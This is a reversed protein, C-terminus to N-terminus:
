LDKVCRGSYGCPKTYIGQGATAYNSFLDLGWANWVTSETASWFLAHDLLNAFGGGSVKYGGPLATFGSSNTAGTNPSLWHSTGTEKMKGGADTGVWGGICSVSADLFTEMQCYEAQSPVHWGAPCIGQRGSPNSSSSTAYNLLENWQYLGGYIACNSELDDYCYKEISGTNTQEQSGYILTGVNLNKAMWCQSGIQVTNYIKNDRTDTIPQGCTWTCAPTMQTITTATSPGCLSCAWIYRTYSSNCSLGTETKSTASAMDTATAYNNSTNWKYGTAYNVANWNWIIQTASAIHTGALPSVPIPCDASLIHWEGATFVCLGGLGNSGCDTCYAVLGEAPNSVANMEVHTMRPPLLGKTVSIVHLMASSNPDTGDATVAVQSFLSISYLVLLVIYSFRKKM